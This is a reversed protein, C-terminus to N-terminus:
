RSTVPSEHGTVRSSAFSKVQSDYGTVRSPIANPVTTPATAPSSPPSGPKERRERSVIAPPTRPPLQDFPRNLTLQGVYTSFFASFEFDARKLLRLM